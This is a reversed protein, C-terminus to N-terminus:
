TDRAWVDGAAVRRLWAKEVEPMGETLRAAAMIPLWAAVQEQDLARREGYARRYADYVSQRLRDILWVEVRAYGEPPAGSRLLLTTRAVDALPNGCVATMWDIIMPGRATLVVNDPHLDGHCLVEGEPLAALRALLDARLEAAIGPARELNWRVYDHLPMLGEGAVGHLAAHLEGLVRGCARARWLHARTHALLSPGVIREYVIGLRGEVTVLEGVAPAALGAEHALRTTHAERRVPEERFGAHFLKLVQGQGWALVDATRGRGVVALDSLAVERPAFSEQGGPDTPM